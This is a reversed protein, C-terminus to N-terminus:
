RSALAEQPGGHLAAMLNFPLSAVARDVAARRCATYAQWLGLQRMDPAPGCVERSAADIRAFLMQAGMTQKANIDEYHVVVQRELPAASIPTAALLVLSTVCIISIKM